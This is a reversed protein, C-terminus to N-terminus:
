MVWINFERRSFNVNRLRELVKILRFKCEEISSGQVMIDFYATTGELDHVIQDVVKHFENPATKIGFFLQKALYTGNKMKNFIDEVRFQNDQLQNNITVKYDACLRIDGNKKPVIVFPTGWEFHDSKKIICQNELDDLEQEVKEQLAYPVRRPKIFILQANARLSLSCQYNPIEGVKPQFVDSFQNFIELMSPQCTSIFYFDHLSIQLNRIWRKGM